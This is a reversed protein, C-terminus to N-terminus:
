PRKEEPTKLLADVDDWLRQWAEREDEPLKDLARGGRVAALNSDAQWHTLRQRVARKAAPDKGIALKQYVALDARLWDLAQRRLRVREEATLPKGDEGQGAAALAANCAAYYRHQQKLDGALRPDAAFADAYFRSAAAHRRKYQQCLQALALQEAANAPKAKRSLVALLKEDLAALRECQVLQQSASPRRPDRPPLLDLCLRTARRAEGFRGQQLLVQGLAGHPNAFKPELGIATRWEAVAGDLDKKDALAIGLNCHTEAHKPNLDIAKRYAAIAGDLDKKALLADGLAGHANALKPDLDIATRCAAIAGDVDNKALLGIGLNSHAVALKPDLDIATRYCAIADDVQGKTKLAIGLNNHAKALKPDLDIATRCATIAGDVDKKAVLANGLNSHAEAYRPNLDIAKRYAAIAGDLDYKALLANGLSNHANAFKPDLGIATRL